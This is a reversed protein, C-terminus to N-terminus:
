YIDISSTESGSSFDVTLKGYQIYRMYIDSDSLDVKVTPEYDWVLCKMEPRVWMKTTSTSAGYNTHSSGVAGLAWMCASTYIFDFKDQGSEDSDSIVSSAAINFPYDQIEEGRSLWQTKSEFSAASTIAFSEMLYWDSINLNSDVLNVNWTTDPYSADSNDGYIHEPKWANIFCLMDKSHVYDVKDNFADRGNTAVSGYDYGSEDFFIGQVGLVLWEDVKSIFNAYSQNVTVYGFIKSEPNLAKIRPIIIETNSYDGHGSSQIGDGFVLLDYRSLEQAVKENNWSNTTSNFCNLYGYYVLLNKM